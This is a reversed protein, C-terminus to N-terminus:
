LITFSNIAVTCSFAKPSSTKFDNVGPCCTTFITLSSIVSNSPPCVLPIFKVGFGGVTIINTPSWPDPLVVVAPFSAFKSLFCPLFGKSTAHSM